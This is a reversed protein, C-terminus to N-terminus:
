SVLKFWINLDAILCFILKAKSRTDEAYGPQCVSIVEGSDTQSVTQGDTITVNKKQKNWCIFSTNKSVSKDHLETCQDVYNVTFSINVVKIAQMYTYCFSRTKITTTKWVLSCVLLWCIFLLKCIFSCVSRLTLNAGYRPLWQLNIYGCGLWHGGCIWKRSWGTSLLM